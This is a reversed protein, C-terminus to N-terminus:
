RRGAVRTPRPHSAARRPSGPMVSRGDRAQLRSRCREPIGEIEQGRIRRGPLRRRAVLAPRRPCRDGAWPTRRPGAPSPSRRPGAGSSSAARDHCRAPRSRRTGSGGSRRPAERARPDWLSGHPPVVVALRPTEVRISRALFRAVPRRELGDDAADGVLGEGVHVEALDRRCVAISRGNRLRDRPNATALQALDHQRPGDLHRRFPLEVRLQQRTAEPRHSGVRVGERHGGAFPDEHPTEPAGPTEDLDRPGNSDAPPSPEESRHDSSSRAFASENIAEDFSRSSCATTTSATASASRGKQSCSAHTGSGTRRSVGVNAGTSRSGPPGGRGPASRAPGRRPAGGSGPRRPRAGSPRARSSRPAPATRCPGIRRGRRTPPRRRLRHIPSRAATRPAGRCGRRARRRAPM